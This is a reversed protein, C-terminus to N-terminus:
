FYTIIKELRISHSGKIFVTKGRIPYLKLYECLLDVHDFAQFGYTNLSSFEKGVLFVERCESQAIMTLIAGHEEKAYQGLELMDGLIVIKNKQDIRLFNNLSEKMSSPNANYTDILVENHTTKVLQSRHNTPFYERIKQSILPLPIDFYRGICVAAM